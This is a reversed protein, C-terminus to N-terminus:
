GVVRYLHWRDPVGKLEHEGADEFVLGSGAVLDKVTQSVVVESPAAKSAVRAGIAVAIGGAKENITEVEGTHLGSKVELGLPRVADRIAAACRIARAPGDFTAFFGDGATDVEIGRYRGLLARVTSHHAEVLDRWAHDGLDSAKETSGVIDTFLVTALVRDFDAEEKQLSEVFRDFHIFTEGWEVDPRDLRVFEAGPIRRAVYQCEELPVSQVYASWLVQTPTQITPLIHRVDTDRWMRESALADAKSLSVRVMRGYARVFEPDRALTPMVSEAFAQVFQPTGWGQEIAELDEAWQEETWAWPADPAWRGVVSPNATVLARAREPYTAAFLLCQAGADEISVLVPREAGAADMVARIDDMRAELTPLREGSVPDSLGTGRRDFWIVRGRSALGRVLAAIYPFIEWAMEVNSVFASNAFVIDLPGEGLVQYAISVGDATTTYRTEPVDM